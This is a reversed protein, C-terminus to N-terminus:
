QKNGTPTPTPTNLSSPKQQQLGYGRYLDAFDVALEYCVIIKRLQLDWHAGPEGCAQVDFVIPGRWVYRDALHAALTELFQTRRIGKEFLGYPGSDGYTVTIKAKPKNAARIHPELVKNWSWSANSFDGQCTGQREQPMQTLDALNSFKDPNGGVMLCVINYARQRDLGHEDYFVTKIGQDQNRKDSLFWGRASQALVRDSLGTNLKLGTVVAFADAADEERGLVPLGMEAILMHGVEHITAFIMNGAVFEVNDRRQEDTLGQYRPDDKLDAIAANIRSELASTAEQKAEPKAAKAAEPKAAKAAQEAHAGTTLAALSASALLCLAALRAAPARKPISTM